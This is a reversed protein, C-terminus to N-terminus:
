NRLIKLPSISLTTTFYDFGGAAAQQAAEELRLEYCKMCRAGGEKLHEMGEAMAYFREKDYKGALFSVPYQFQMDKILKQQEIIRKTYESEPYINPNYYFVTIKFYHSLYELVYSSCPACCSHVFADSGSAGEELRKLIKDLEKQYNIKQINM